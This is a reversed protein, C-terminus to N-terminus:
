GPLPKVYVVRDSVSIRYPLNAKTIARRAEIVTKEIANDEVEAGHVVDAIQEFIVKREDAILELFRPM